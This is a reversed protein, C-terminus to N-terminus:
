RIHNFFRILHKCNIGAAKLQLQMKNHLKANVIVRSDDNFNKYDTEKSEIEWYEFFDDHLNIWDIKTSKLFNKAECFSNEYAIFLSEFVYTGDENKYNSVFIDKTEEDDLFIKYLEMIENIRDIIPKKIGIEDYYKSRNM